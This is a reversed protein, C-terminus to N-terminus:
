FEPQDDDDEDSGSFLEPREKKLQKQWARPLDSIQFDHHAGWGVKGGMGRIRKDHRLLEFIYRHLNASPKQNNFGKREGLQGNDYLIFAAHHQWRNRGVEEALELVTCAGKGATNCCHGTLREAAPTKKSWVDDRMYSCNRHLDLWRFKSGPFKLITTIPGESDALDAGPAEKYGIEGHRKVRGAYSNIPWMTLVAAYRKKIEIEGRRYASVVEGYSQRGLVLHNVVNDHEGAGYTDAVEIYHGLRANIADITAYGTIPPEASPDDFHGHEFPTVDVEALKFIQKQLIPQDPAPVAGFRKKFFEPDHQALWLSELLLAKKYFRLAWVIRDERKLTKRTEDIKKAVDPSIDTVKLTKGNALVVGLADIMPLYKDAAECVLVFAHINDTELIREVLQATDSMNRDYSGFM